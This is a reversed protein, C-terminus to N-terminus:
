AKTLRRRNARVKRRYHSLTKAAVSHGTLGLGGTVAMAQLALGADIKESVMKLAEAQADAGGAALKMSRMAIVTSAELGLTLAGFTVDIWPNRM